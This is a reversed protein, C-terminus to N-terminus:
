RMYETLFTHHHRQNQVQNVRDEWQLIFSNTEMSWDRMRNKLRDVCIMKPVPDHIHQTLGFQRLVRDPVHM